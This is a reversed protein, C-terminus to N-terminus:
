FFTFIVFSLLAIIASPMDILSEANNNFTKDFYEGIVMAMVGFLVGLWLNEFQITAYATILSIHHTVPISKGVSNLILSFASIYFGLLEHGTAMTIYAIALSFPFAWIINFMMNKNINEYFNNENIKLVNDKAIFLRTIVNSIVITFAVTDISLHFINDFYYNILYGVGAFVGAIVISLTSKFSYLSAFTSLGDINKYTELEGDLEKREEEDQAKSYREICNKKRRNIVALAAVGGAFGVHPALFPGASVSSILIDGNGSLVLVIGALGIIGTFIFANTGGILGGFVGGGFAALIQHIVSM